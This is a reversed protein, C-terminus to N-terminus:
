ESIFDGPLIEGNRVMHVSRGFLLGTKVQGVLRYSIPAEPKELAKVIGRVHRWLNTRVPVEFVQKGHAPVRFWTDSEGEALQVGNLQVSYVLGRVPLSAGNPNDIRFRLIFKQQTLRARVVEVELLHVEPDQFDGAFWTACGTLGSFLGFLLSLSLIRIMQAQYYM